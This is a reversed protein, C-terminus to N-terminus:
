KTRKNTKEYEHELITIITSESIGTKKSVNKIAEKVSENKSIKLNSIDGQNCYPFKTCKKKIKVFGGGPIQTKRNPGWDKKKTSKAWMAPTEYGGVSGSTTAETAEVKELNTEEVFKGGPTQTKKSAGWDKKSDSKAFMPSSSGGSSGSGTAEVAGIKEVQEDFRTMTPANGKGVKPDKKEARRKQQTMKEKEDKDYSSAVKPTEKSVKKSPRCKPYSKGDADKRGCPPHKGDVKKSVDVWKEKFWRGLDETVGKKEANSKKIYDDSFGIPSKRGTSSEKTEFKDLDPEEGSFLPGSYAGSSGSGTAEKAEKKKRGDCHAKQSFGKPNSCDISKKYKESWKEDVEGDKKKDKDKDFRTNKNLQKRLMPIMDEIDLYKKEKEEKPEIKKLKNYYKPDEWLHDMAIEEAEAKNKTHEIEKKIGKKLQVKLSSVMDDVHYYGKKDHKKAIDELTKKDALGGELEEEKFSQKYKNADAMTSTNLKVGAQTFAKDLKNKFLQSSSEM